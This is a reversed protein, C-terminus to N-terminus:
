VLWWVGCSGLLVKLAKLALCSATFPDSVVIDGTLDCGLRRKNLQSGLAESLATICLMCGTFVGPAIILSCCVFMFSGSPNVHELRKRAPTQRQRFATPALMSLQTM